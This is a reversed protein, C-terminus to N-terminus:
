YEPFDLLTGKVLKNTSFGKIPSNLLHGTDRNLLFVKNKRLGGNESIVYRTSYGCAVDYYISNVLEAVINHAIEIKDFSLRVLLREGAHSLGKSSTYSRELLDKREGITNWAEIFSLKSIGEKMNIHVLITEM